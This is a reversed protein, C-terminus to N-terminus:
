KEKEMGTVDPMDFPKTGKSIVLGIITNEPVQEGANRDQSIVQGAAVNDDYAETIEAKLGAEKLKELAVDKEDWIVYPVTSIGNVPPVVGEGSSVTLSVTGSVKMYSGGPHDQLVIIGADIYKSVVSGTTAALLHQEEIAKIADASSMLEVDPVEVMGNPIIVKRSYGSLDIVGTLLLAGFTLIMVLAAPVAIKLWLPWSYLDLKKIRGGVRRVPVDSELERIFTPVDPTRDEIRVNLANLIANERNQSINRALVHPEVLIDKNQNEFKARREMADPPTKGTIMKYLVASLAYVDTYPGQDGRSRYQEEPSYGPKIIVTLSRSHSTTAYRSAGFDILKIEGMRTIFINDPAIDRHLLGEGHVVQLSQMVPMLMAVADDEPITGVQNLYETLTMGDLYEMIIYATGNEEFADFIRVIGPENQFKALHKAEEVFKKLGDHFQQNRDGNFVTVTPSGPMRTSFESPLYEKIAVKQELRGDWGIYTVGFGGYGIVKGVIYRDHLFSGPEMHIAEEAPTGAVYGCYPCVRTDNEVMEM